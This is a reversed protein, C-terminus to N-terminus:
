LAYRIIKFIEFFRGGRKLKFGHSLLVGKIVGEIEEKKFQSKHCGLAQIKIDVYDSIDVFWNPEFSFSSGSEYSIINTNKRAASLVANFCYKHDQHWDNGNIVFILDPSIQHIYKEIIQITEYDDKIFCDDIGATFLKANILKTANEAEKLRIEPDGKKDGKCLILLNIENNKSLRALTGFCGLELDDPHPGIALIKKNQLINEENSMNFNFTILM